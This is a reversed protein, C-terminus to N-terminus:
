KKLCRVCSQYYSPYDLRRIGPKDKKFSRTYYLITRRLTSSWLADETGIYFYAGNEVQFGGLLLNFGSTGGTKLQTGQDVGRYENKDSYFDVQEQTMGLALELTKFDDDSPLKYGNPCSTSAQAWNYLKGYTTCNTPNNDYCNAGAVEYRLNEAMWVQNGITVTKYVNGDRADTFQNAPTPIPDEKKKEKKECSVITFVVTALLAVVCMLKKMTNM